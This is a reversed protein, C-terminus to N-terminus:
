WKWLVTYTLISEGNAPIELRWEVKEADKRVPSQSSTRIEWEGSFREIVTVRVAEKKHNRLKIEFSQERSRDGLRRESTKRREAIIDFAKGIRVSVKEDKPTHAIADEGLFLVSGDADKKYIRFKGAPLPRGLGNKEANIFRISVAVNRPDRQGEYTYIKEVGAQARDLFTIQKQQNNKLTAPRQLDYLHYEFFEREQFAEKAATEYQQARALVPRRRQEAVLNVQGAVLKLRADKYTAGSRNEISAWGNLNLKKEDPSLVGVYEAHWTVGRTLYSVELERESKGRNEALWILTPRARLGEPLQPFETTLIENRSIVQLTGNQQRLVVEQGAASLLEGRLAGSNKTVVTINKELYKQFLKSSNVLDFEFNQELIELSGPDTNIKIQVSTPDIEGAVDPYSVEAVGKPFALTRTEHVLALNQNYVTIATQAFAPSGMLLLVCVAGARRFTDCHELSRKVVGHLKM